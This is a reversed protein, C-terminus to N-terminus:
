GNGRCPIELLAAAPAFVEGVPSYSQIKKGSTPYQNTLFQHMMPTSADKPFSFNPHWLVM